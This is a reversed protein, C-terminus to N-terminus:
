NHAEKTVREITVAHLRDLVFGGALALVLSMGLLTWLIRAKIKM